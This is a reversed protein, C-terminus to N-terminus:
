FHNFNNIHKIFAKILERNEFEDNAKSLKGIVDALESRLIGLSYLHKLYSMDFSKLFEENQHCEPCLTVLIDNSYDWPETDPYYITHHVQMKNHKVGCLQCTSKDRAIIEKRKSKWQPSKLKDSYSM